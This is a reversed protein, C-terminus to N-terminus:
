SVSKLTWREDEMFSNNMLLSHEAQELARVVQLGDLGDTRPRKGTMVCEILHQAEARLPEYGELRPSLIDGTRYSLQYEGFSSPEVFSDAGQIHALPQGVLNVGHDFLKLKEVSETDDYILMKKSGVIVTRRLKVPSLWSLQVEAVAGSGFAMNIFVVDPQEPKICGKGFAQVYTPEEGLWYFLMSLDHPALDWIVSVDPQHLGLNVRSSSIYYIQGLEEAEILEKIKVVPPSYKFTHGVMLVRNREEALRVLKEASVSDATLPKEVFVHKDKLLAMSALEYHTSIPTAIVVIDVDPDNLVEDYSETLQIGPYRLAVKQLQMPSRDCVYKVSCETMEMFNRLLNPGWYGYGVLAVTPKEIGVAVM